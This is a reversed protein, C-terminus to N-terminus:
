VGARVGKPALLVVQLGERNDAADYRFTNVGPQLQMNMDSDPSLYRFGNEEAGDAHRYTVRKDGYVTSIVFSEGAQLTKTIRLLQGTEVLLVEPTEVQATATLTITVDVAVDGGNLVRKFASSEYQSIYWQGGTYFPFKFLAKIGALLTNQEDLTRWYPYPCRLIFQFTQQVDTESMVPTRKPTGELYWSEGDERLVFRAPTLPSVCALLSRRNAKLDGFLVGTVTLDRPQVSQASRTSGIQGTGQTESISIENSSLSDIDSIWFDSDESFAVSGNRTIYEFTLM